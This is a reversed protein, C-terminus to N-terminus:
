DSIQLTRMLRLYKKDLRKEDRELASTVIEWQQGLHNFRYIKQVHFSDDDMLSTSANMTALMSGIKIEEGYNTEKLPIQSVSYAELEDTMLQKTPKPSEFYTITLYTTATDQMSPSVKVVYGDDVLVWSKPQKFSWTLDPDEFEIRQAYGTLLLLFFIFSILSRM